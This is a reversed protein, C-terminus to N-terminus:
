ADLIENLKFYILHYTLVFHGVGVFDFAFDTSTLSSQIKASQKLLREKPIHPSEMEDGLHCLWRTSWCGPQGENELGRIMCFRHSGLESSSM